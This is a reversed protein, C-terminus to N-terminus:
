PGKKPDGIYYPVRMFRVRFLSGLKSLWGWTQALSEGDVALVVFGLFDLYRFVM